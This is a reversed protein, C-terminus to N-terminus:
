RLVGRLVAPWATLALKREDVKRSYRQVSESQRRRCAVHAAFSSSFTLTCADRSVKEADCHHETLNIEMRYVQVYQILERIIVRAFGAM